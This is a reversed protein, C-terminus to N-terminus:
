SYLIVFVCSNIPTYLFDEVQLHYVAQVKAHIMKMTSSKKYVGGLAQTNAYNM